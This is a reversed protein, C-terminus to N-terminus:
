HSIQLETEGSVPSSKIKRKLKDAHVGVYNGIDEWTSVYDGKIKFEIGRGEFQSTYLTLRTVGNAESHGCSAYRHADVTSFDIGVIVIHEHKDFRVETSMKTKLIKGWQVPDGSSQRLEVGVIYHWGDRKQYSVCASVTYPAEVKPKVNSAAAKIKV